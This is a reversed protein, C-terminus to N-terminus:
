RGARTLRRVEELGDPTWRPPEPDSALAHGLYFVLRAVRAAKDNDIREAVDGPRHYDEHVGAFFFLAPIEHRAFSFHDSRFFFRQEPWLDDSVTLRLEPRAAAVQLAAPGLSSYDMGIAVISDPANRGIMDLNINAVIAGRPVTPNDAFHASGLLGKEEGSVTLFLLSRAPRIPLSAFARALELVAATGSANDDAGNYISDGQADPVGVGVHDMHASFVIYTGRLTPDSGELVGVVNPPRHEVDRFPVDVRASAGLPLPPAAGQRAREVLAHADIGAARLAPALADFAAHVTPAMPQAPVRGTYGRAAQAAIDAAPTAPDRLVVVAEAGARTAHRIVANLAFIERQAPGGPTLLAIRGALSGPLLAASDVAAGLFVLAGSASAARGPVAYFDRRPDLAHAGSASEVRFSASGADLTRLSYPYRQIFTGHDGAPRLGLRQFESAIYAAAADLGQSPTDRGRLADSALFAIRAAMDLATIAGAAREVAGASTRPPVVGVSDVRGGCAASLLALFVVARM